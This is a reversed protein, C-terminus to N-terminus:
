FIQPVCTTVLVQNFGEYHQHRSYARSITISLHPPEFLSCCVLDWKPTVLLLTSLNLRGRPAEGLYYTGALLHNSSLLSLTPFGGKLRTCYIYMLSCYLTGFHVSLLTTRFFSFLLPEHCYALSLSSGPGLAWGLLAFCYSAQQTMM